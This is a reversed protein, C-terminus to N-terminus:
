PFGRRERFVKRQEDTLLSDIRARTTDLLADMRPRVEQQIARFARGQERLVSDVATRQSGTLSLDRALRGLIGRRMREEERASGEGDPRGPGDFGPPGRDPGGPGGRGHMPPPGSRIDMPGGLWRRELVVGILVGTGLTMALLLPALWPAWRSGALTRGSMDDNM